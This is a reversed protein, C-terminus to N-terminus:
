KRIENLITTELSNNKKNNVKNSNPNRLIKEIKNSNSEKKVIGGPEPMEDINPPVTLPEKKEILFEDTSNTKENRLIKGAEKLGGCSLLITSLM